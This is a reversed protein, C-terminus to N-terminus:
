AAWDDGQQVSCLYPLQAHRVRAYGAHDCEHNSTHCLPTSSDLLQSPASDLLQPPVPVIDYHRPETGAKLLKPM